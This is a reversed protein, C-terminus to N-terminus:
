RLAWTTTPRVTWRTSGSRRGTPRSPWRRIEKDYLVLGLNNHATSDKPDLRIAERYAALAGDLDKKDYLALGLSNHAVTNRPHAAVAAQFWRVREDAGEKQDTPYNNGLVMLLTLDGPHPRLAVELVARRRGVPVSWHQGLAAVFRAPQALAEPQNALEAVRKGDDAAVADRVAERYADPDAAHLVGRVAASRTGVLWLDLTARLRDKLLSETVRRAVDAAPGAQPDLGAAAFAGQWRAAVAQRDPFKSEVPTWRFQDIAELERLLALDARCRELRGALHDAGGEAARKQAAELVM